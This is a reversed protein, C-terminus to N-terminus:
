IGQEANIILENHIAQVAKDLDSERIVCSIKIESTSIMEINIGNGALARFMKAAVGCHTKMGVGVVSVKAIKEDSIVKEASLEKCLAEAIKLTSVFDEKGVTFSIDNRGNQGVNQIIMDVVIHSDSIRGFVEAAIGPRDPVGMISIKAENRNYAVGSVVVDEMSKDEKMVLTGPNDNFSSRVQIVVNWNKALEVSRNVLVKAGLSALELMEDYSIKELKRANPCIRPDTTYVGDVDTYIDCVDAKLAAALAVATTDSGGRGLTTIDYDETCGQFGAVIVINGSDLAEKIKKANIRKIRAKRHVTDTIIGVQPGTFSIAKHGMSQLAIALVAITVQEGTSMLMDMERAPPDNTIQHALSILGDTTKGMASVVIVVQNGMEKERLAKRAVNKIKDVDAVSSGGFKQVVLAM